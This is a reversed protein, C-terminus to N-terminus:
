NCLQLWRGDQQIVFSAMLVQFAWKEAQAAATLEERM